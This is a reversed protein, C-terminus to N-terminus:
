RKLIWDPMHPPRVQRHQSDMARAAQLFAAFKQAHAASLAVGEQGRVLVPGVMSALQHAVAQRFLPTWAGPETVFAIYRLKADELDTYLVRTGSSNLEISFDINDDPRQRYDQTGGDELLYLPRLLDDPLEYAYDWEDRDNTTAVLAAYRTAFSWDHLELATTVAQDYFQACVAAQRSTDPGGVATIRASDGILALAHNCVTIDLTMPNGGVYISVAWRNLRFYQSSNATTVLVGGIRLNSFEFDHPNNAADAGEIYSIQSPATTFTIDRLRFRAINGLGDRSDGFLAPDEYPYPENRFHFGRAVPGDVILGRVDVDYRGWGRRAQSAWADCRVNLITQDGIAPYTNETNTDPAGRHYARCNRVRLNNWTPQTSDVGSAHDPYAWYLLKWCSNLTTGVVCDTDTQDMFPFCSMADDGAEIFCRVREGQGTSSRPSCVFGDGIGGFSHSLFQVDTWSWLGGTPALHFPIGFVTLGRAKNESFFSVGQSVPSVVWSYMMAVAFPMSLLGDVFPDYQNLHSAGCGQLQINQSRVGLGDEIMWNGRVVANRDIHITCGDGVEWLFGTIHEGAPFHVKLNDPFGTAAPNAARWTVWSVSGAPIADQLSSSWVYIPKQHNGNIDLRFQRFPPVTLRLKGAVITASVDSFTPWMEFSTVPGTGDLLTLELVTTENSGWKVWSQQRQLGYAVDLTYPNRQTSNWQWAYCPSGNVTAGVRLSTFTATGPGNCLEVTM